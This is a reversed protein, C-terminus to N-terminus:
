KPVKEWDALFKELGIDTLPHKVIKELVGYPMTAIDAGALAAEVVHLPHRLSAALVETGIAYNDYIAVIQHVLEMGVHGIDDLRGLFPSVYTAGAKAALLAQTANFVLTCNTAIEKKALRRIAKLGEPIMPIKVVANPGYSALKEAEAVMGDADTSVVELSIPGNCIQLIQAALDEFKTKEKAILSPNTTVGDLVGWDNATKIQELNATDLFIKV